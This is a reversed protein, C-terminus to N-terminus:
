FTLRYLGHKSCYAYAAHGRKCQFLCREWGMQCVERDCFVFADENAMSFLAAAGSRLPLYKMQGGQFTRLFIWEIRHEETMPHRGGDVEIRVTNHSAGGFICYQLGHEAQEGDTEQPVLLELPRGCCRGPGEEEPDPSGAPRFCVQVTGCTGCRYFIPEETRYSPRRSSTCDTPYVRRHEAEIM